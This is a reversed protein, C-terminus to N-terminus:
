EEFLDFNIHKQMLTFHKDESFLILNNNFVNDLIILDPIGVNNIGHKLNQLQMNMIIEWNISIPINHLELLLEIIEEEKKLKLFPILETLVLNNTCIQNNQILADLKKHANKDKFYTIWVSTDILIKRM